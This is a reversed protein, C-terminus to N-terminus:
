KKDDSEIGNAENVLGALKVLGPEGTARTAAVRKFFTDWQAKTVDKADAVQIVQLMFKLLKRKIPLGSSAKLHGKLDDTLAVFKDRYVKLEAENPVEADDGPERAAESPPAPAPASTTAATPAPAASLSAATAKAKPAVAKARPAAESQSTDANFRGAATNGDDDEAALGLAASYGARRAYTIAAVGTQANQKEGLALTFSEGYYEGSSHVLLTLVGVRDGENVPFQNIVIDHKLLAGETARIVTTLDAYKSAKGDKKFFTNESQKLVPDFEPKALILAAVLKAISDSKMLM